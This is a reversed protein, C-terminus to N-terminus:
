PNEGNKEKMIKSVTESVSPKAFRQKQARPDTPKGRVISVYKVVAGITFRGQLWPLELPAIEVLRHVDAATYPPEAARLQKCARGLATGNVKSDSATVAVLADWLEDRTRTPPAKRPAPDTPPSSTPFLEAPAAASAAERTNETKNHERRKEERGNRKEDDTVNRMVDVSTSKGLRKNDRYRQQREAALAKARDDTPINHALFKPLRLRGDDEEIAWGVSAMAEGFCPVGAIEDLYTHALVLDDGDRKGLDNAVGWIQLLTAVTVCATVNRTIHEYCSSKCSQHVPHTLWDMFARQESLYDAMAIVQPDRVLNVRMKIWNGAM